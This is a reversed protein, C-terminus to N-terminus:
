EAKSQKASARALDKRFWAVLTEISLLLQQQELPPLRYILEKIVGEIAETANPIADIGPEASPIDVVSLPPLMEAAEDEAPEVRKHARAKRPKSEVGLRERIDKVDGRQTEPRVWGESLAIELKDEPLKTLEYLTGWYPPLTQVYASKAFRRGIAMLQNATNQSCTVPEPLADAHNAFLREFQGHPLARKADIFAQGTAIIAAVSEAMSSNIRRAWGQADNIQEVTAVAPKTM